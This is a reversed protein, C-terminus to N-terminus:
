RTRFRSHATLKVLVHFHHAVGLTLLALLALLTRLLGAIVTHHLNVTGLIALLSLRDCHLIADRRRVHGLVLAGANEARARQLDPACM